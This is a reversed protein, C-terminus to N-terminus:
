GVMIMTKEDCTFWDNEIMDFCYGQGTSKHRYYDCADDTLDISVEKLDKLKLGYKKQLLRERINDKMAAAAAMKANLQKNYQQEWFM